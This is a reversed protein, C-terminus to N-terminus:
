SMNNTLITILLTDNLHSSHIYTTSQLEVILWYKLMKEETIIGYLQDDMLWQRFGQVSKSLPYTLKTNM